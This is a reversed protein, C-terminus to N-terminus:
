QHNKMQAIIAKLSDLDESSKQTFEQYAKTFYVLFEPALNACMIFYLAIDSHAYTGGHRGRKSFIGVQKTEGWKKPSIFHKLSTPTALWDLLEIAKQEDFNDNSLKEWTILFEINAKPKFFKWFIEYFPKESIATWIDNLCIYDGLENTIIRIENGLVTITEKM